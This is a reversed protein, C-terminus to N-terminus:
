SCSADGPRIASCRSKAMQRYIQSVLEAKGLYGEWADILDSPGIANVGAEIMEPTIEMEAAEVAADARPPM